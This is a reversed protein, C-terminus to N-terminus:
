KDSQGYTANKGHKRLFHKDLLKQKIPKTEPNLTYSIYAMKAVEEVTVASDVAKKPSLGWTFVGHGALLIAPVEMIDKGGFTEAIVKGANLEYEGEIEEDTLVRACPVAGYFADAHTTGLPEVPKGAQAFGTAFTSHTHVIGRLEPYKRYLYVHTPTDCSPNYHGEVRNGDLDVVVMDKPKLSSYEVGSPKIVVLKTEPDYGSVNGWTLKVLGLEKLRLNEECVAKKLEELM